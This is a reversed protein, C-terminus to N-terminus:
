YDQVHLVRINKLIEEGMTYIFHCHSDHHQALWIFNAIQIHLILYGSLEGMNLSMRFIFFPMDFQTLLLNPKRSVLMSMGNRFILNLQVMGLVYFSNSSSFKDELGHWLQLTSYITTCYFLEYVRLM